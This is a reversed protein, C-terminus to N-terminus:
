VLETAVWIDLPVRSIQLEMYPVIKDGDFSEGNALRFLTALTSEFRSRSDYELLASARLEFLAWKDM